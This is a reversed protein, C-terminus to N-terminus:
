GIMQIQRQGNWRADVMLIGRHVAAADERRGSPSVFRLHSLLDEQRERAGGLPILEQLGDSRLEQAEGNSKVKGSREAAVHVSPQFDRLVCETLGQPDVVIPNQIDVEGFGLVGGVGARIDGKETGAAFFSSLLPVPEPGPGTGTGGRVWGEGDNGCPLATRSRIM